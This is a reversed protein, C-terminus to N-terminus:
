PILHSLCLRKGDEDEQTVGEAIADLWEQLRDANDDVFMAIAERAAQTSKNPKGLRSGGGTKVRKEV